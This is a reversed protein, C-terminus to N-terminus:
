RRNGTLVPFSLPSFPTYSLAAKIDAPQLGPEARRHGERGPFVSGKLAYGVAPAQTTNNKDSECLVALSAKGLQQCLDPDTKDGFCRQPLSLSLSVDWRARDRQCAARCSQARQKPLSIGKSMKNIM